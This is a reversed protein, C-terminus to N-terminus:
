CSAEEDNAARQFDDAYANAVTKDCLPVKTKLAARGLAHSSIPNTFFIFIILLIIKGLWLPNLLGIGLLFLITGLSTAKTGTQIRNYTDPMRIIGLIGLLFFLSGILTIIAGTLQM